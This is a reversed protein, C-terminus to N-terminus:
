IETNEKGWFWWGRAQRGDVGHAWRGAQFGDKGTWRRNNGVARMRWAISRRNLEVDMTQAQTGIENRDYCRFSMESTSAVYEFHFAFFNVMVSLIYYKYIECVSIYHQFLVKFVSPIQEIHLLYALDLSSIVCMVQFTTMKYKCLMVLVEIRKFYWRFKVYGTLHCSPKINYFWCFRFPIPLGLYTNLSNLTSFQGRNAPTPFMTPGCFSQIGMVFLSGCLSNCITSSGLDNLPHHLPAHGRKHNRLDLTTRELARRLVFIQLVCFLVQVNEVM